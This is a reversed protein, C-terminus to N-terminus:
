RYGKKQTRNVKTENFLSNLSRIILLCEKNSMHGIKIYVEHNLLEVTILARHMSVHSIIKQYTMFFGIVEYFNINSM